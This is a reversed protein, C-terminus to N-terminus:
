CSLCVFFAAARSVMSYQTLLITGYLCQFPFLHGANSHPETAILCVNLTGIGSWLIALLGCQCIRYLYLMM